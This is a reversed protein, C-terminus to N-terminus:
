VYDRKLGFNLFLLHKYFRDDPGLKMFAILWSYMLELWFDIHTRCIKLKHTYKQDTITM